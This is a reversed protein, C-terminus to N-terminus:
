SPGYKKSTTQASASAQSYTLDRQEAALDRVELCNERAPCVGAAVLEPHLHVTAQVVLAGLGGPCEGGSCGCYQVRGSPVRGSCGTPCSPPKSSVALRWYRSSLGYTMTSTTPTGTSPMATEAPSMSFAAGPRTARKSFTSRLRSRLSAALCSHDVLDGGLDGARFTSQTLRELVLVGEVRRVGGALLDVVLQGRGGSGWRSRSWDARDRCRQM